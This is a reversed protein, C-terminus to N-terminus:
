RLDEYFIKINHLPVKLCYLIYILNFLFTTKIIGKKEWRRPSVMIRDPLVVTNGRKRLKKTFLIDEMIPEEPFGGLEWFIDKRVFIGQDGYFVRSSRARFNGQAEILRYIFAENDIRQTLCGGIFGDVSIKVKISELAQASINSDVHLFLLIDGKALGAGCNMQAARGRKSQIVKGYGQAIKFSADLSGGDVFILEAYKSLNTFWVASELLVKEENYVPVIVSVMKDLGKM